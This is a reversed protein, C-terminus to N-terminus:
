LPSLKGSNPSLFCIVFSFNIKVERRTLVVFVVLRANLTRFTWSCDFKFASARILVNKVRNQTADDNLVICPGEGELSVKTEIIFVTEPAIGIIKREGEFWDWWSGGM